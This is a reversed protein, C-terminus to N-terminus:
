KKSELYKKLPGIYFSKWGDEIEKLNKKPVNDHTLELKTNDGDPTLTFTVTSPEDWRDAGSWWEQVLVKRPEVQLNKGFIESGWMTFKFGVEDSMKAPGGGWANIVKPDVLAKWVAKIPAKIKYVQRIM